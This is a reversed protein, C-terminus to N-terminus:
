QVVMAMTSTSNRSPPGNDVTSGSTFTVIDIADEAILKRLEELDSEVAVNRYAVGLDVEAGRRRLEDILEDSGEAARQAVLRVVGWVPRDKVDHRSPWLGLEAM